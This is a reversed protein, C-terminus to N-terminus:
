GGGGGWGRKEGGEEEGLVELGLDKDGTLATRRAFLESTVVGVAHSLNM